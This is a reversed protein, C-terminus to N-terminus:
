NQLVRESAEGTRLVGFVCGDDDSWLDGLVDLRGGSAYRSSDLSAVKAVPSNVKDFGFVHVGLKYNKM